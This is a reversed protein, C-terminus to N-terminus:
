NNINKLEISYIIKKVTDLKMVFQESEARYEMHYVKPDIVTGVELNRIIRNGFKYQYEIQFGRHGALIVKTNTNIITFDTFLTKYNNINNNVYTDITTNPVYESSM